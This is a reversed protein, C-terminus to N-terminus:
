ELLVHPQSCRQNGDPKLPGGCIVWCSAAYGEVLQLLALVSCSVCSNIKGVGCGRADGQVQLPAAGVAVHDPRLILRTVPARPRYSGAECHCGVLLVARRDGVRTTGPGSAGQASGVSAVDLVGPGLSGRGGEGERSAVYGPNGCLCGAPAGRLDIYVAGLYGGYIQVGGRGM